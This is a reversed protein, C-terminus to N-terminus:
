SWRTQNSMVDPVGALCCQEDALVGCILPTRNSMIRPIRCQQLIRGKIRVTRPFHASGACFGPNM